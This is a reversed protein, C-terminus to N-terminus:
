SRRCRTKDQPHWPLLHQATSASGPPIVATKGSKNDIFVFCSFPGPAHGDGDMGCFGVTHAKELTQSRPCFSAGKPAKAGIFHESSGFEWHEWPTGGGNWRFRSGTKLRNSHLASFLHGYRRRMRCRQHSRPPCIIKREIKTCSLPGVAIDGGGRGCLGAIRSKKRYETRLRNQTRFPFDCDHNQFLLVSCPNQAM